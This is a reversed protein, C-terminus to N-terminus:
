GNRSKSYLEWGFYFSKFGLKLLRVAIRDRRPTKPHHIYGKSEELVLRRLEERKALYKVDCNKMYRLVSLRAHNIRRLCGIKLNPFANELQDTMQKSSEIYELNKETFARNVISDPNKAYNYQPIHGYAYNSTNLLVEGFIYTDEFLRGIPYRLNDFISRHYLKGWASVDVRDHFLVAEAADHQSLIFDQDGKYNIRTKEGCIIKHNAQSVKCYPSCKILEYLYSICTPELYDDSDVFSIYEGVCRDLGYNRADSLGGNKKHYISFRTDKEAWQDCITRSQDTSGDDIVLVEINQYDQDAVSQLCRELYKQVNYVPIIVSILPKETKIQKKNSETM